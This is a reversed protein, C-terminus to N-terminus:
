VKGQNGNKKKRKYIGLGGGGFLITLIINNNAIFDTVWQNTGTEALWMLIDM